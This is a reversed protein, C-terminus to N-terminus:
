SRRTTTSRKRCGNASSARRPTSAARSTRPSAASRSTGRTCAIAPSSSAYWFMSIAGLELASTGIWVLHSHIRNLEVLATRMWIAKSPVEIDLLKEVAGVFVYENNQYSVYDIRPAYPIAKWWTKQEMNKEFGTHLYGIVAHLGVVTEGQLDIVLRLVGHTSPHNPGFNVQLVDQTGPPVHLITPVPSPIRTGEYIRPREPALTM